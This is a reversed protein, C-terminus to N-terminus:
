QDPFAALLREALKTDAERDDELGFHDRRHDGVWAAIEDNSCRQRILEYLPWIMCDYEDDPYGQASRTGSWCWAEFSGRLAALTAECRVRRARTRPCVTLIGSRVIEPNQNRAWAASM